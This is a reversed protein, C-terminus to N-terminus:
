VQRAISAQLAVTRMARRIGLHQLGERAAEAQLAVRVFGDIVVRSLGAPVGSAVRRDVSGIVALQKKLASPFICKFWLPPECLCLPLVSFPSESDIKM